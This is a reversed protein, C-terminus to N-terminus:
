SAILPFALAKKLPCDEKIDRGRRYDELLAVSVRALQRRVERRKGKVRAIKM